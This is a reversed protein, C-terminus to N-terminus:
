RAPRPGPTRFGARPAAAPIPARARRGRTRAPRHPTGPTPPRGGARRTGPLLLEAGNRGHEDRANVGPRVAPPGRRGAARREHEVAGEVVPNSPEGVVAVRREHVREDRGEIDVERPRAPLVLQHDPEQAEVPARGRELPGDAHEGLHDRGAEREARGQGHPLEDPRDGVLQAAVVAMLAVRDALDVPGRSQLVVLAALEEVDRQGVLLVRVVDREFPSRRPREHQRVAVLLVRQRHEHTLQVRFAVDVDVEVVAERRELRRLDLAELIAEGEHQPLHDLVGAPGDPIQVDQRRRFGVEHEPGGTRRAAVDRAVVRHDADDLPADFLRGADGRELGGARREVIELQVPPRVLERPAKARPPDAGLAEDADAELPRVIQDDRHERDQLGAGREHREVGRVRRRPAGEDHGVGRGRQHDRSAPQPRVGRAPDRHQVEVGLSRRDRPFVSSIEVDEDRGFRERVHVVRRPGGTTGFAHHHAVAVHHVEEGRHVLAEARARRGPERQGAHREVDGHQLQQPREGAARGHDDAAIGELHHRAHRPAPPACAGNVDTQEVERAVLAGPRGVPVPEQEVARAQGVRASERRHPRRLPMEVGEAPQVRVRRHRARGDGGDGLADMHPRAADDQRQVMRNTDGLFPGDHVVQRAAADADREGRAPLRAVEHERGTPVIRALLRHDLVDIPDAPEPPALGHRHGAHVAARDVHADERARHLRLQRDPQGRRAIGLGEAQRSRDARVQQRVQEPLAGLIERALDIEVARRAPALRVAGLSVDREHKMREGSPRAFGHQGRHALGEALVQLARHPQHRVHRARVPDLHLRPAEAVLVHLRQEVVGELAVEVRARQEARDLRAALLDIPQGRDADVLDRQQDIEAHGVVRRHVAEVQQGPEHGARAIALGTCAGEGLEDIAVVHGVELARRRHGPHQRRPGFRVRREARELAQHEAALLQRQRERLRQVVRPRRAQAVHVARGLRRDPGRALRDVRPRRRHRDTPGDDVGLHVHEIPAHARNRDADGALQVDAPAAHRAAVQPPRVPRRLHEHRIGEAGLRASPQVPGAVERPEARVSAELEGAAGVVLQLDPAVPDFGPFDLRHQHLVRRDRLRGDDGRRLAIAVPAEHREEHRSTLVGHVRTVHPAESLRAHGGRESRRGVDNPCRQRERRVPLNIATRELARSGLPGVLHRRAAPWGGAGFLLHQGLEPGVQQPTAGGAGVVVEELGAAMREHRHEERLAHARQETHVDRQAPEEVLRREARQRGANARRARGATLRRNPRRDTVTVALRADQREGLLTEPEELLKRRSAAGVVHGGAQEEAAPEVDARKARAEGPHDPTVVHQPAAIWRLRALRRDHHIGLRREVQGDDVDGSLRVGLRRHPTQRLDLGPTREIQGRPRENAGPEITKRRVQM